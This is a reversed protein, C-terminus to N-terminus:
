VLHLTRRVTLDFSRSKDFFNGIGVRRYANTGSCPELILFTEKMLEKNKYVRPRLLLCLYQTPSIRLRDDFQGACRWPFPGKGFDPEEDGVNLYPPNFAKGSPSISLVIEQVPGEVILRTSKVESTLPESTWVVEWEVLKLHDHIDLHPEDGDRSRWLDFCIEHPCSLWTWSPINSLHHPTPDAGEVLKNIRVWMLDQHFSREWLGLIPVDKTTMQYHRVIGSMAPLRDKPFSFRRRSYSEMWRWWTKNAGVQIDHPLTPVSSDHIASRDFVFGTETRCESDCEWYLGSRMFHATRRSLVMEQLVWGRTNLVSNGASTRIDQPQVRVITGLDGGLNGITFFASTKGLKSDANPFFCGVSADAADAAAITISSGSYTDQM